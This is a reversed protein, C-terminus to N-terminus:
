LEVRWLLPGACLQEQFDPALPKAFVIKQSTTYSKGKRVLGRGSTLGLKRWGAAEYCTGRYRQGDVFTEMLLPRYGWRDQWDRAIRGAVQGLVHSALNHVQVWPFILFRANNVVWALNELRRKKSWGLWQDRVQIARAAGSFVFGGLLGQKCSIFYQVNYGFPKKYGLYHYRQIYEKLLDLEAGQGAVKLEVPGLEKLSCAIDAGPETRAPQKIVKRLLRRPSQPQKKPLSLKGEGELRELLKLCAESKNGGSATHWGLHECVTEVFEKRSLQWFTKATEQITEIESQTIDRGSQSIIIAEQHGM